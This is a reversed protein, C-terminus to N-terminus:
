GDQLATDDLKRPREDLLKIRGDLSLHDWLWDGAAAVRGLAEFAAPSMAVYRTGGMLGQHLVQTTM